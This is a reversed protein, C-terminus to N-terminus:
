KGNEKTIIKIRDHVYSVQDMSYDREDDKTYTAYIHDRDFKTLYYDELLLHNGEFIFKCFDDETFGELEMVYPATKIIRNQEDFVEVPCSLDLVNFCDDEGYSVVLFNHGQGNYFGSLFITDFGFISLINTSLASFETCVAGGTGKFDSISHEKIPEFYRGDQNLLLAHLTERSITDMRNKGFYSLLFLHLYGVIDYPDNVVIQNKRVYDVFEYIYDESDMYYYQGENSGKCIDYDFSGGYVIRTNKPIYGFWYNIEIPDLEESGDERKTKENLDLRYGIINHTGNTKNSEKTVEDIRKEIIEIIEKESCNFIKELFDM